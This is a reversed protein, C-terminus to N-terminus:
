DWGEWGDDGEGEGEGRERAEQQARGGGPSVSSEDGGAASAAAAGGGVRGGSGSHGGGGGGLSASSSPRDVVVVSSTNTNTSSAACSGNEEEEGWGDTDEGGAVDAGSGPDNAFVRKGRASRSGSRRREPAGSTGGSGKAATPSTRPRHSAARLVRIEERLQKVVDAEQRAESAAQEASDRERKLARRMNGMDVRLMRLEEHEGDSQSLKFRLVRIEDDRHEIKARTRAELEACALERDSDAARLAAEVAERAAERSAMLMNELERREALFVKKLRSVELYAANADNSAAEAAALASATRGPAAAGGRKVVLNAASAVAAAAASEAEMRAATQAGAREEAADVRAQCEEEQLEQLRAHEASLAAAAAASSRKQDATTRALADHDIELQRMTSRLHDVQAIAADRQRELEVVGGSGGGGGEGGDRSAPLSSGKGAAAAALSARESESERLAATLRAIEAMAASSALSKVGSAAPGRPAPLPAPEGAAARGQSPPMAGMAGGAPPTPGDSGRPSPPPSPATSSAAPPSRSPPLDPGDNNGDGNSNGTHNDEDEQDDEGWGFDEDDDDDQPFSIGGGAKGKAVGEARFFYRAWFDDYTLHQPVLQTHIKTVVPDEQLLTAIDQTRAGIDFKELFASFRESQSEPVDETYTKIDARIARLAATVEHQRQQQPPQQQRPRRGETESNESGEYLSSEYEEGGEGLTMASKITVAADDKLTSVFEGLDKRILGWM